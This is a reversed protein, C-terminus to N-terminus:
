FRRFEFLNFMLRLIDYEVFETDNRVAFFCCWFLFSISIWVKAEEEMGEEQRWHCPAQAYFRSFYRFVLSMQTMIEVREIGFFCCRSSSTRLLYADSSILLFPIFFFLFKGMIAPSHAGTATPLTYSQKKHFGLNWIGVKRPSM